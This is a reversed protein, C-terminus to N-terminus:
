EDFPVSGIQQNVVGNFEHLFNVIKPVYLVCQYTGANIQLISSGELTHPVM